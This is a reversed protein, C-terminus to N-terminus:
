TGFILLDCAHDAGWSWVMLVARDARGIRLIGPSEGLLGFKSRNTSNRGCRRTLPVCLSGRIDSALRALDAILGDEVSGALTPPHSWDRRLMAVTLSRLPGCAGM